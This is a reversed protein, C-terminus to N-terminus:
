CGPQPAPQASTDFALGPVAAGLRITAKAEDHDIHVDTTFRGALCMMPRNRVLFHIYVRALGRKRSRELTRVALRTAIRRKRSEAEVSVGLEGVLDDGEEYVPLHIIGVIRGDERAGEVIDRAFNWRGCYEVIAEDPAATGFRLVRDDTGLHLLHRLIAPRDHTTLPEFKLAMRLRAEVGTKKCHVLDINTNKGLAFNCM